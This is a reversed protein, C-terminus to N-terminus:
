PANQNAVPPASTLYFDTGSLIGTRTADGHCSSCGGTAAEAQGNMHKGKAVNITGDPNVSDAHCGSCSKADPNAGIAPHGTPPMGHCSACGVPTTDGWTVRAFTGSVPGYTFAGHCYVNSCTQTTPDFAGGHAQMMPNQSFDVAFGTPAHCDACGNGPAYVGGRLHTSHVASGPGNSSTAAGSTESCGVVLLIAVISALALATRRNSM